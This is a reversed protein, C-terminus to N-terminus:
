KLTTTFELIKRLPIEPHIQTYTAKQGPHEVKTHKNVMINLNSTIFSECLLCKYVHPSGPFQCVGRGLLLNLPEPRDTPHLVLQITLDPGDVPSLDLSDGRANRISTIKAWGAPTSIFMGPKIHMTEVPYRLALTRILMESKQLVPLEALYGYAFEPNCGFLDLAQENSLKGQHMFSLIKKISDEEGRKILVIWCAQVVNPKTDSAEALRFLQNASLSALLLSLDDRKAVGAQNTRERQARDDHVEFPRFIPLQASGHERWAPKLGRHAKRTHIDLADKRTTIYEKCHACVLLKKGKPFILKTNWLDLTAIEPHLEPHLSLGLFIDPEDIQAIDLDIDQRNRIKEIRGWGGPTKIFMGPVVHRTEFPSKRALQSITNQHQLVKPLELLSTFCFAPDVAFLSFLDDTSIRGLQVQNLARQVGEKKGQRVFQECQTYEGSNAKVVLPQISIEAPAVGTQKPYRRALENMQVRNAQNESASSLTKYSFGPNVGLLETVEHGGLKGDHFLSMIRKVGTPEERRLLESAYLCCRESQEEVIALTVLHEDPLEVLCKDPQEQRHLLDSFQRLYIPDPVGM